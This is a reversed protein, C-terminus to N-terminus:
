RTTKPATSCLFYQKVIGYSGKCHKEEKDATWFLPKKGPLFFLVGDQDKYDNPNVFISGDSVRFELLQNHPISDIVEISNEVLVPEIIKTFYFYQDKLAYIVGRDSWHKMKFVKM